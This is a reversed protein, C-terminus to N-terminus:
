GTTVSLLAIRRPHAKIQNPSEMRSKWVTFGHEQLWKEAPHQRPMGPRWWGMHCNSVFIGNPRLRDVLRNLIQDFESELFLQVMQRDIVVDFPGPCVEPNLLNGTLFEATGGPRHVRNALYWDRLYSAFFRVYRLLFGLREGRMRILRGMPRCFYRKLHKAPPRLNSVFKTAEASIDVAKVQVGATALAYPELSIGNGACLVTRLGLATMTRALWLDDVFFDSFFLFSDRSIQNKWYTNWGEVDHVDRPPYLWDLDPENPKEWDPM